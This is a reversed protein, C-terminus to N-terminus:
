GRGFTARPGPPLVWLLARLPLAREGEGGEGAEERRPHHSRQECSRGHCGGEICGAAGGFGRDFERDRDGRCLPELGYGGSRVAGCPSAADQTRANRFSRSGLAM